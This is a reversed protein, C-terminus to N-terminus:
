SFDHPIELFLGGNSVLLLVREREYSLSCDKEGVQWVEFLCVPPELSGVRKWM